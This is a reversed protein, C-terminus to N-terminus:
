TFKVEFFPKGPQTLPLSGVQLAPSRLSTPKIGPDSLHGPPPFPLGSWYEQRSFGMTLPAQRATTWPTAFIQVCSFHSLVCMGTSFLACLSSSPFPPATPCEPPRGQHSDSLVPLRCRDVSSYPSEGGQGQTVKLFPKGLVEAELLLRPPLFPSGQTLLLPNPTHLPPTPTAPLDWRLSPGKRAGSSPIHAELHASGQPREWGHRDRGREERSLQSPGM